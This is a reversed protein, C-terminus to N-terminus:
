PVQQALESLSLAEAPAAALPKVTVHPRLSMVYDEGLAHDLLTMVLGTAEEEDDLEPQASTYLTVLPPTSSRDLTLKADGLELEYISETIVIADEPAKKQRRGFFVWNPTERASALLRDIEAAVPEDGEPTLILASTGDLETVDFAFDFGAEALISEIETFVEDMRDALVLQHLRQSVARFRKWFLEASESM